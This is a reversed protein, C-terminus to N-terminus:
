WPVSLVHTDEPLVPRLLPSSLIFLTLPPPPMSPCWLYSCPLCLSSKLLYLTHLSYCLSNSHSFSIFRLTQVGLSLTLSWKLIHWAVRALIVIAATGKLGLTFHSSFYCWRCMTRGQMVLFSYSGRHPFVCMWVTSQGVRHTHCLHDTGCTVGFLSWWRPGSPSLKSSRVMGAAITHCLCRRRREWHFDKEGADVNDRERMEDKRLLMSILRSSYHNVFTYVSGNRKSGAPRDTKLMLQEDTKIMSLKKLLNFFIRQHIAFLTRAMKMAPHFDGIMGLSTVPSSPRVFHSLYSHLPNSTVSSGHSLTM